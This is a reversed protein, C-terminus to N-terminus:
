SMRRRLHLISFQRLHKVVQRIRKVRPTAERVEKVQLQDGQNGTVVAVRLQEKDAVNILMPLHFLNELFSVFPYWVKEGSSDIRNAGRKGRGEDGLVWEGVELTNHCDRIDFFFSKGVSFRLGWM